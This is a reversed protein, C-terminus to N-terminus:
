KSKSQWYSWTHEDPKGTSGRPRRGEWIMEALKKLEEAHEPAWGMRIMQQRIKEPTVDANKRYLTELTRIANERDNPHVIGTNLNVSQTLSSLAIFVVGQTPEEPTTSTGTNTSKANLNEAGWTDVWDLHDEDNWPVYLVSATGSISDVVNLLAQGGYIVLIPGDWQRVSKDKATLLGISIAGSRVVGSNKLAGLLDKFRSWHSINDLNAKSTVAVLGKNDAKQAESVLWKFGQVLAEDEPGVSEVYLSKGKRNM